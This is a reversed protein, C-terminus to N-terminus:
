PPSHNPPRTLGHGHIAIHHHFWCVTTLDAPDTHGGDAWSTIHHIQLRYRSTCGEITCAAGDRHLIARRLRPPIVRSRHGYALPIGDQTTAAVEVFGDCLIGQLAAPGLQPGAEVTVGAEGNTAAAASANVFASVLPSHTDISAGDSGTLTDLSIAWLADAWRMGRTALHEPNQPLTDAKHDLADVLVRGATAPLEGHIRWSSADLNAQVVVYRREFSEREKGTSIRHRRAATVLTTDPAVDLRGTVWEALSRCGDAMPTQRRDIERVLRMQAARVGAIIAEGELLTQEIRDTTLTTTDVSAVAYAM